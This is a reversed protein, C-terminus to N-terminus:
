DHGDLQQLAATLRTRLAGSYEPERERIDEDQAYHELESYASALVPDDWHGAPFDRLADDVSAGDEIVARILSAALARAETSVEVNM